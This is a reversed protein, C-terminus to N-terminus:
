RVRRVRRSTTAFRLARPVLGRSGDEAFSFLDLLLRRESTERALRCRACGGPRHGLLEAVALSLGVQYPRRLRAAGSAMAEAGAHAPVFAARGLALM